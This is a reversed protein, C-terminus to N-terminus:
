DNEFLENIGKQGIQIGLGSIAGASKQGIKEIGKEILKGGQYLGQAVNTKFGAGSVFRRAIYATPDIGYMIFVDLLDFLEKNQSKAAYKALDEFANINVAYRNMVEKLGPIQKALEARLTDAAKKYFSQAPSLVPNVKFSSTRRVGDIFRRTQLALNGPINKGTSSKLGNVILEGEKVIESEFGYATKKLNKIYDSILNIYGKKNQIVVSKDAVLGKLQNEARGMSDLAQKMMTKENGRFGEQLVEKAQTPNLGGSKVETAIDDASQKFITSMFKEPIVKSILKFGIDVAKSLGYSLATQGAVGLAESGLSIDERVGFAHGLARKATEGLGTGVAIGGATGLGPVVSGLAGGIMSTAFPIASGAVDAIDGVDLKGRLGAEEERRKLEAIQEPGGFSLKAREGFTLPNEKKPITGAPKIGLRQAKQLLTEEMNNHMKLKM